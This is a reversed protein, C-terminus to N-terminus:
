GLKLLALLLNEEARLTVAGPANRLSKLQESNMTMASPASLAFTKEVGFLDATLAGAVINSWEKIADMTEPEAVEGPELGLVNAAIERCLDVPIAIQLEGCQSSGKFTVTAAIYDAAPDLPPQESDDIEAFVFAFNELTTVMVRKLEEIIAIDEVTKM